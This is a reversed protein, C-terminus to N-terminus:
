EAEMLGQAIALDKFMSGWPPTNASSPIAAIFRKLAEARKRAIVEGASPPRPIFQTGDWTDGPSANLADRLKCGTPPLWTSGVEIEIINVVLGTLDILAKRM